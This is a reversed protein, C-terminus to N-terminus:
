LKEVLVLRSLNLSLGPLYPMGARAFLECAIFIQQFRAQLPSPIRRSLPVSNGARRWRFARRKFERTEMKQPKELNAMSLSNEGTGQYTAFRMGASLQM